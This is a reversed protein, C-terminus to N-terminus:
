NVFGGRTNAGMVGGNSVSQIAGQDVHSVSTLDALSNGPYGLARAALALTFDGNASDIYNPNNATDNAGGSYTGNYSGSSNNYFNNYDIVCSLYIDFDVSAPLRIGYGTNNTFQNNIIRGNSFSAGAYQIPSEGNSDFTNAVIFVYKNQSGLVAAGGNNEVVCNFMHFLSSSDERVIRANPNDHIWSYDFRYSSNVNSM